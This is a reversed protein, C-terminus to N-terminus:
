EQFAAGVLLSVYGILLVIQRYGFVAFWRSRYGDWDGPYDTTSWRNMVANIPVNKRVMLAADAVLCLLAVITTVLVTASGTRWSVVLLLLSTVLTTGYIVPIRRDMVANIRQRLEVFAPASLARQVTTLAVIYFLPQSVVASYAVLNTLIALRIM